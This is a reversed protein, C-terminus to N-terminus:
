PMSAPVSMVYSATCCTKMPDHVLARIESRLAAAATTFPCLTAGPTTASLHHRAAHAHSLLGLVFAQGLDELFCSKFPTLAAARQTQGHVIVNQLRAHATCRGRVSIKSPGGPFLHACADPSDRWPQRLPRPLDSRRRRWVRKVSVPLRMLFCFPFNVTSLPRTAGSSRLLTSVSAM